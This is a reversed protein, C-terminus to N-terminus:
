SLYREQIHHLLMVKDSLLRCRLHLDTSAYVNCAYTTLKHVYVMQHITGKRHTGTSTANFVFLVHGHFTLVWQIIVKRGTENITIRTYIQLYYVYSHM